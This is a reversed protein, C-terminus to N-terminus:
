DSSSLGMLLYGDRQAWADRKHTTSLIKRTSGAFRYKGIACVPPNSCELMGSFVTSSKGPAVGAVLQAVDAFVHPRRSEFWVVKRNCAPHELM